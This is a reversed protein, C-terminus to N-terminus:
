QGIIEFSNRYISVNEIGIMQWNTYYSGGKLTDNNDFIAYYYVSGEGDGFDRKINFTVDITEGVAVNEWNWVKSNPSNERSGGWMKLHKITESSQNTFIINDNFKEKLFRDDSCGSFCVLVVLFIISKQISLKSM